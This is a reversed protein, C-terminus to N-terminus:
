GRIRAFARLLSGDGPVVGSFIGTSLKVKVKADTAAEYLEFIEMKRDIEDCILDIIANEQASWVLTHGREQAVSQLEKDLERRIKKAEPSKAM